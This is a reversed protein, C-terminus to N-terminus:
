LLRKLISNALHKHSLYGAHDDRARDLFDYIIRGEKSGVFIELELVNPINKLLIELLKVRASFFGVMDAMLIFNKHNTDTSWLGSNFINIENEPSIDSLFRTPEPWQWIIHKPPKTITNLWINLNHYMTDLGTGGIALNYYDCKLEQAVIYPYTDELLNGVGETHSCGLFLIYNNLNINKIDVCRHGYSNYNYIIKKDKYYWNDPATKIKTQLNKLTDSGSFEKTINPEAGLFGDSILLKM